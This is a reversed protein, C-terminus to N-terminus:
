HQRTSNSLLAPLSPVVMQIRIDGLVLPREIFVLTEHAQIQGMSLFPRQNGLVHWPPSVVCDLVPEVRSQFHVVTELLIDIVLLSFKFFTELALALADILLSIVGVWFSVGLLFVLEM